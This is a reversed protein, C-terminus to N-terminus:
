TNNKIQVDSILKNHLRNRPTRVLTYYGLSGCILRIYFRTFYSQSGGKIVSNIYTINLPSAILPLPYVVVPNHRVGGMDALIVWKLRREDEAAATATIRNVRQM